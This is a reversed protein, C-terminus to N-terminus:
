QGLPRRTRARGPHRRQHQRVAPQRLGPGVCVQIGLSNSYVYNREIRPAGYDEAWIGINNDFVRNEVAVSTEPCGWLRIGCYNSYVVNDRVEAGYAVIGGQSSQTDLHNYVRNEAVVTRGYALIGFDANDHVINGLVQNLASYASPQVYIGFKNGFVENAVVRNADGSLQIGYGGSVAGGTEHIRNQEIRAEDNSRDLQVGAFSNGFLDNHLLQLRDSDWGYGAFVAIM